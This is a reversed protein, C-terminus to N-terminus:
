LKTVTEVLPFREFHRPNPEATDSPYGLALLIYPTIHDPLDFVKAMAPVDFACIWCSGVGLSQAALMMQTTVITCDMEAMCHDVKPKNCAAATDGCIMLVTNAGYCKKVTRMKELAEESRIVFIRQPQLNMATPALRGAELIQDLVDDPIPADSFSRLSYRDACLKLFDMTIEKGLSRM